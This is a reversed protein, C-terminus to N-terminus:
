HGERHAGRRREGARALPKGTSPTIWTPTIERMVGSTRSLEQSNPQRSRFRTVRPSALRTRTSRSPLIVIMDLVLSTATIGGWRFQVRGSAGWFVYSDWGDTERRAWRNAGQNSNYIFLVLSTNADADLGASSIPIASSNGLIPFEVLERNGLSYVVNMYHVGKAGPKTPM